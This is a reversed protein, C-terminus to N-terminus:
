EIKDRSRKRFALLLIGSVTLSILRLEVQINKRFLNEVPIYSATIERLKQRLKTDYEEGPPSKPSNKSLGECHVPTCELVQWKHFNRVVWHESGYQWDDEFLVELGEADIKSDSAFFVVNSADAGDIPSDRFARVFEFKQAMISAARNLVDNDAEREGAIAINFVLLGAAQDRFSVKIHRMTESNLFRWTSAMGVGNFADVIVLDHSGDRVHEIVDVGDGVSCGVGFEIRALRAVVPNIEVARVQVNRHRLEKVVSGAGVGLTIASTSAPRLYTAAAQIALGRFALEHPTHMHMAGMIAHESILFKMDNHYLIHPPRAMEPMWTYLTIALSFVLAHGISM